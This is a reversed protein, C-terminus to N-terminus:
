ADEFWSRMHFGLMMQAGLILMRLEYLGLKLKDKLQTPGVGFSASDM